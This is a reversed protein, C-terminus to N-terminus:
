PEPKTERGPPTRLDKIGCVGNLWRDCADDFTMSPLVDYFRDDLMIFPDAEERTEGPFKALFEQRKEQSRPFDTGFVAIAERMITAAKPLDAREFWEVMEPAFVGTSNSFFQHFGGNNIDAVGYSTASMLQVDRPESSVSPDYGTQTWGRYDGVSHINRWRAHFRRFRYPTHELEIISAEREAPSKAARIKKILDLEPDKLFDKMEREVRNPSARRIELLVGIGILIFCVMWAPAIRNGYGQDTWDM